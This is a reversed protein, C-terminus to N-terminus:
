NALCATFAGSLDRLLSPYMEVGPALQAGIPDLSASKLPAGDQLAEILGANFQPETFVCAAQTDEVVDRVETLRAASPAAGDSLSISASAEVGFRAEFYHYADHFVIFKQGALPALEAQLDAQLDTLRAQAKEANGSYLTANEPDQQSLMAAIQDLWVIANKPDLWMHPDLAGAAHDHGEHADTGEHDAHDKEDGHDDGSHDHGEHDEHGEHDDHGDHDEHGAEDGHDHAEFAVGSRNTLLRIGDADQLTLRQADQALSDLPGELWATLSPGVWVVLDAQALNRAETPRMAYSHPSAGPPIILDPSGAGQMVMSVLSHVPAIDTAVRPVEAHALGASFLLTTCLLRRM